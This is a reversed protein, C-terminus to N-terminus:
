GRGLAPFHQLTSLPVVCVASLHIQLAAPLAFMLPSSPSMHSSVCLVGLQLAIAVLCFPARAIDFATAVHNPSCTQPSVADTLSDASPILPPSFLAPHGVPSHCQTVRVRGRNQLRPVLCRQFISTAALGPDQGLQFLKPVFIFFPVQSPVAVARRLRKRQLETSM